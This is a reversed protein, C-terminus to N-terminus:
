FLPFGEPDPKCIGFVLIIYKKGWYLFFPIKM